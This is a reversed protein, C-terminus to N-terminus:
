RLEFHVLDMFSQDHVDGDNDWDGGWRLRIGMSLAIGLVKGAFLYFREHDNWDIPYPAVDVALSPSALHRSNMTKTKGQELLDAQRERTRHGELVVHDIGLSLVEMFVQQLREDCTRLRDKSRQSYNAMPTSLASLSLGGALGGERARM